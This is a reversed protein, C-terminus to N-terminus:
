VTEEKRRGDEVGEKKLGLIDVMGEYIQDIDLLYMKYPIIEGSQDDYVGLCYYETGKINEYAKPDMALGRKIVSMRRSPDEDGLIIQSYVGIKKYRFAYIFKPQEIKAARELFEKDIM